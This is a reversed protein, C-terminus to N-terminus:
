ITTFSKRDVQSFLVTQTHTRFIQKNSSHRRRCLFYSHAQSVNYLPSQKLKNEEGPIIQVILYLLILYNTYTARM